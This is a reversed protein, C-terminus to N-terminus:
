GRRGAGPRADPFCRSRDAPVALRNGVPRPRPEPMGAPTRPTSCGRDTACRRWRSSRGHCGTSSSSTASSGSAYESTVGPTQLTPGLSPYDLQGDARFSRDVIMLPVDRAGSPLGLTAEHDDAVLHFGALGRYVQPGTFDTRHDHYWLTGAPQDMPYEYTRTGVTTSGTHTMGGSRHGAHGHIPLLFDTPFGDHEPPVRGGHLHVVVPVELSNTHSVITNRGRQSVITPGPFTGNYGWVTTRLGPLIETEAARQVVEYYDTTDTRRM